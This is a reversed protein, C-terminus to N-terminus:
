NYHKNWENIFPLATMIAHPKFDLAKMKLAYTEIDQPRGWREPCVVCVKFQNLTSIVEKNIPLSSVTDLWLWDTKGIFNQAFEIPEYESYRVAIEKLGENSKRYLYPNEVDLLFYEKIGKHKVMELVRNEIGATKINLIIGAHNFSKLYEEFSEGQIFPDHHLVIDDKYARLDIEVGYETPVQKLQSVTNIRHIFKLM